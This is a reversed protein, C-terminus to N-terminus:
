KSSSDQGASGEKVIPNEPLRTPPTPLPKIVEESFHSAQADMSHSDDEGGGHSGQANVSHLDDAASGAVEPSTDSPNAAVVEVTTPQSLTDPGPRYYYYQQNGDAAQPSYNDTYGAPYSEYVQGDHEQGPHYPVNETYVYQIPAEAVPSVPAYTAGNSDQFYTANAPIQQLPSANVHVVQTALPITAPAPGFNKYAQFQNEDGEKFRSEFVRDFEL